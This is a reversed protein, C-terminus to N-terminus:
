TIKIVDLIKNVKSELESVRSELSLDSPNLSSALLTPNDSRWQRGIWYADWSTGNWSLCRVFLNGGSDRYITGWFFVWNEKWSDPILETHELLYDLVNANLVNKGALRKRLEIGEIVGNKQGEDLYLEVNKPDFEFMGSGIHEEVKWGCPIYPPTSLNIQHM